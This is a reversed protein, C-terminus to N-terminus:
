DKVTDLLTEDLESFTNIVAANAKYAISVLKQDVLEREINVGTASFVEAFGASQGPESLPANPGLQQLNGSVGPDRSVADLRSPAFPVRDPLRSSDLSGANVINNSSVSLRQAQYRLGSLPISYDM